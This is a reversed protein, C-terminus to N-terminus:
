ELTAVAQGPVIEQGVEVPIATVIGASDAVVEQTMKMVELTLVVDGPKVSQGKAVKIEVIRGPLVSVVDM